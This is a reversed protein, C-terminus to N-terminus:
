ALTDGITGADCRSNVMREFEARASESPFATAPIAISILPAIVVFSRAASRDLRLVDRWAARVTTVPGREEIGEDSVTLTTPGIVGRLSEVTLVSKWFEAQYRRYLWPLTATLVAAFGGSLLYANNRDGQRVYFLAASLWALGVIAFYAFQAFRRGISSAAAYRELKALQDACTTEYQFTTNM